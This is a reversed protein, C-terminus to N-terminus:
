LLLKIGCNQGLLKIDQLNQEQEFKLHCPLSGLALNQYRLVLNWPVVLPPLGLLHLEVRRDELYSTRLFSELIYFCLLRIIETFQFFIQM